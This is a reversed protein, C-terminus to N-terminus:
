GCATRVVSRCAVVYEVAEYALILMFGLLDVSVKGACRVRHLYSEDHRSDVTLVASLCESIHITRVSSEMSIMM